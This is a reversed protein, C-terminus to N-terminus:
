LGSCWDTIASATREGSYNHLKGDVEAVVTPFGEVRDMENEPIESEEVTKVTCMPPPNSRVKDWEPMMDKCHPCWDAHYLILVIKKDSYNETKMMKVYVYYGALVVLVLVLVAIAVNESNMKGGRLNLM